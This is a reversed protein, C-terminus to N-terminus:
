LIDLTNIRGKATHFDADCALVEAEPGAWAFAVERPLLGEGCRGFSDVLPIPRGHSEEVGGPNPVGEHNAGQAEDGLQFDRRILQLLNYGLQESFRSM